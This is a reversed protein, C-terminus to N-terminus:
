KLNKAQEEIKKANSVEQIVSKSIRDLTKIRDSLHSSLKESLKADLYLDLTLKKAYAKASADSPACGNKGTNKPDALFEDYLKCFEKEAINKSKVADVDADYALHSLRNIYVCLVTNKQSRDHYPLKDNSVDQIAIEIDDLLKQYDDTKPKNEVTETKEAKIITAAHTVDVGVVVPLTEVTTVVLNTNEVQEVIAVIDNQPQETDYMKFAKELAYVTVQVRNANSWLYENTGAKKPVCLLDCIENTKDHVYPLKVTELIGDRQLLSIGAKNTKDEVVEFQYGKKPDLSLMSVAVYLMAQDGNLKENPSEITFTDLGEEVIYVTDRGDISRKKTVGNFTFEHHQKTTIKIKSETPKM